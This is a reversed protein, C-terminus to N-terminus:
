SAMMPLRYLLPDAKLRLSAGTPADGKLYAVVILTTILREGERLNAWSIM